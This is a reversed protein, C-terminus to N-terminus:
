SLRSGYFEIFNQPTKFGLWFKFIFEMFGYLRPLSRFGPSIEFNNNQFKPGM